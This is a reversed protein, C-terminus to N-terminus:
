NIGRLTELDYKRPVEWHRGEPAELIIKSKSVLVKGGMRRHLRQTLYLLINLVFKMLRGKVLFM